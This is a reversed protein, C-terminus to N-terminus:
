TGDDIRSLLQGLTADSGWSVAVVEEFDGAASKLYSMAANVLLYLADGLGALPAV